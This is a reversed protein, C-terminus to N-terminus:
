SEGHPTAERIEKEGNPSEKIVTGNPFISVQEGNPHIIKRTNDAFTIEKLGDPHHKETQGNPFEFMEIGNAYTTHTTEASAYFYVVLGTDRYTKKVDGNAFKVM